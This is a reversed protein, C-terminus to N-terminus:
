SEDKIVLALVQAELLAILARIIPISVGNEFWVVTRDKGLQFVLNVAEAVPGYTASFVDPKCPYYEGKVGKIIWDHPSVRLPGELTHVHARDPIERCGTCVGELEHGDGAWAHAEVIIPKKRFKM